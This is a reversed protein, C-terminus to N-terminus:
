IGKKFFEGSYKWSFTAGPSQDMVSLKSAVRHKKIGIWSKQRVKTVFGLSHYWTGQEIM